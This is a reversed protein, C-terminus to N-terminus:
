AKRINDLKQKLSTVEKELTEIRDLAKQLTRITPPLLRIYDLKWTPSGDEMKEWDDLGDIEEDTEFAM